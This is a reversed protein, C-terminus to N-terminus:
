ENLSNNEMEDENLKKKKKWLKSGTPGESVLLDGEAVRDKLMSGKPIDRIMNGKHEISM